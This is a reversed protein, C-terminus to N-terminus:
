LMDDIATDIKLDAQKEIVMNSFIKPENKIKEREDEQKISIRWRTQDKPDEVTKENAKENKNPENIVAAASQIAFQEKQMELSDNPNQMYAEIQAENYHENAAAKAIEAYESQILDRMSTHKPIGIAERASIIAKWYRNGWNPIPNLPDEPNEIMMKENNILLWEAATLKAQMEQQNLRGNKHAEILGNMENIMKEYPKNEKMWQDAIGKAERSQIEWAEDSKQDMKWLSDGKTLGAMDKAKLGGFATTGFLSASNQDHYLDTFAFMSARLLENTSKIIDNFEPMRHEKYSIEKEVEFVTNLTSKFVDGFMKQGLAKKEADSSKL